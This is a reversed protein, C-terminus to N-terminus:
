LELKLQLDNYVQIGTACDILDMFVNDTCWHGCKFKFIFSNASKLKFKQDCNPYRYYRGIKYSLNLM